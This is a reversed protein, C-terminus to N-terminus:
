RYTEVKAVRVRTEGYTAYLRKKQRSLTVGELTVSENHRPVPARSANEGHRVVLLFRDREPVVTVNRGAVIPDATSPKSTYVPLTNGRTSLNVRYVPGAGVPVWGTRKAVVRDRWGVGG